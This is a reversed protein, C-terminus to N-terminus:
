KGIGYEEMKRYLTTLGIGLLDAAKTKNGKAFSLIKQIHIKEMNALSTISNDVGVSENNLIEIPLLDSTLENGDALIVSREICNKLERINGKWENKRLQKLFDKDIHTIRKKLKASYVSVFHKALEEIDEKRERLSPIKIKFTALRYYLDLRFHEKETEKKLDRNTAAIVRVNVKTPKTDGVKIFSQSELVRLLKAQLDLNMEGMEDLFITGENAEEFLGKKDSVAGTFAGKKHGFLESELLDKAFASCNVAVFPKNKRSGGYHLAQAFLEKGVGTEGELLVSSDTPAVKKALHIANKIAESNGLITEFGHKEELKKELDLIRKQLKVKEFARNIAPVIQENDDGKTFYDFAGHKMALVGDHITGFATMVIVESMPSITRLKELQEIGNGDPLKVDTLIIDISKEQELTKLATKLDAAQFVTFGELGIIRSLLQRLKEEDDIILITKSTSM